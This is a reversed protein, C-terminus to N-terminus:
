REGVQQKPAAVVTPVTHAASSRSLHTPSQSVAERLGPQSFTYAMSDGYLLGRKFQNYTQESHKKKQSDDRDPKSSLSQSRQRGRRPFCPVSKILRGQPSIRTRGCEGEQGAITADASRPRVCLFRAAGPADQKDLGAMLGNESSATFVIM